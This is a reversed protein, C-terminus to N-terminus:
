LELQPLFFGHGRQNKMQLVMASWEGHRCERLRPLLRWHFGVHLRCELQLNGGEGFIFIEVCVQFLGILLVIGFDLGFNRQM